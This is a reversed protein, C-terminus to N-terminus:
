CSKPAPDLGKDIRAKEKANKGPGCNIEVDAEGNKAKLVDIGGRGKITDPGGAGLGGQLMNPGNDGLVTDAAQSGLVDEISFLTDNGATTGVVSGAALDLTLPGGGNNFSIFDRGPGGDITDASPAVEGVLMRDNGRGACLVDPGNYINVQDDGGQALVTNANSDGQIVDAGNRGIRDDPGNIITGRCMTREIAGADCGDEAPRPAGRADVELAKGDVKCKNAPVLDLGGSINSPASVTLPITLDLYGVPPSANENLAQLQSDVDTDTAATLGCDPDGGTNDVNYGSSVIEGDTVLFCADTGEEVITGKLTTTYQSLIARGETAANSAITSFTLHAEPEDGGHYAAVQLGGGRTTNNLSANEAITVNNAHLHSSAFIGGGQNFGGGGAVNNTISVRDLRTEEPEGGLGDDGLFVGGGRTGGPNSGTASNSDFVSEIITNREAATRLGGGQAFGEFPLAQNGLVASRKITLHALEGTVEIGGGDGAVANEAVTSNTLRVKADTGAASIGGGRGHDGHNGMIRVARLTLDDGAYIGGGRNTLSDGSANVENGSIVAQTGPLAVPAPKGFLKLPANSWIAGGQASVGSVSNNALVFSGKLTLSKCGECAIAGGRNGAASDQITIDQLLVRAGTLARIAGGSSDADGVTNGDSLNVTRLTVKQHSTELIRDSWGGAVNIDRADIAEDGGDIILPGGRNYDLDGDANTATNGTRTLTVDGALVVKDAKTKSGKPCGGFAKNTRAAEVAERLACPGGSGFEDGDTQVKITVASAPAAGMTAVAVTVALLGGRRM